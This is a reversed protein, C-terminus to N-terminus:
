FARGPATPLCAGACPLLRQRPPQPPSPGHLYHLPRIYRSIPGSLRSRLPPPAGRRRPRQRHCLYVRLGDWRSAASPAVFTSTTTWAGPLAPAPQVRPGVAGRAGTRMPSPRSRRLPRPACKLELVHQALGSSGAPLASCCGKGGLIAEPSRPAAPQRCHAAHAVPESQGRPAKKPNYM